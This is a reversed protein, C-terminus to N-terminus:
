GCEQDNSATCPSSALLQALRAHRADPPLQALREVATHFAPWDGAVRDFLAAFAPVWQDYLGFPLLHANNLPRDFWADYGTWGGWDQDRLHRYRQRLADFAAHKAAALAAPDGAHAAYDRALQERTDLVLGVFQRRRRALMAEQADPARDRAARWQRLGEHEVFSAYSENFATDGPVFLREHTMEHIVTGLLAAVGGRLMTNLVPDRFKGLTSYAPVPSVMADWGEASLRAVEAEARAQAFYGRYALCGVFWHCTERAELSYAPAAMVNWVVYDRHLDVYHTYSGNDPLALTDIAFARVDRVDRLAAALGAPTEPAAIVKGIPTRAASLQWQGEALHLYYGVKGCGSLMVLLLLPALWRMLPEPGRVQM